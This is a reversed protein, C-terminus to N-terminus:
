IIRWDILKKVLHITQEIIELENKKFKNVYLYFHVCM